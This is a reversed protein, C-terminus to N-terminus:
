RRVPSQRRRNHVRKAAISPKVCDQASSAVALVKFCTARFHSALTVVYAAPGHSVWKDASPRLDASCRSHIRHFGSGEIVAYHHWGEPETHELRWGVLRAIRDPCREIGSVAEDVGGSGVAVLALDALGHVVRVDTSRLDEQLRLDPDAVVAVVFRQMAKLLAGALKADVLDVQQEQVLRQRRREISGQFGVASQFGQEGVALDTGDPDAIEHDLV